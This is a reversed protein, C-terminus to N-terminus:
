EQLQPLQTKRNEINSTDPEPINSYQEAADLDERATDLQLKALKSIRAMEDEDIDYKTPYAAAAGRAVWLSATIMSM